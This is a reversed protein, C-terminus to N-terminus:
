GLGWGVGNDGLGVLERWRCEVLATYQHGRVGYNGLAFGDNVEVLITDGRDTVAWDIAFGIPKDHFKALASRMTTPDPFLLPDGKYNAVNIIEGRLITARWESMMPVFQQVIVPEEDDVGSLPILDAFGRVVAGKFLKQRDRPKVHLPLREPAHTEWRRVEGMTAQTITRGFYESLEAPFDLNRPATISLRKLADRVVAVAGYVITSEKEGVILEDLEGSVLQERSFPLVEYGREWFWYNVRQAQCFRPEGMKAILSLVKM